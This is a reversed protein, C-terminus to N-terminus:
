LQIEGVVAKLRQVNERGKKQGSQILWTKPSEQMNQFGSDAGHLFTLGVAGLESPVAGNVLIHLARSSIEM